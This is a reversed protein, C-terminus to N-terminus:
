NSCVGFGIVQGERCIDEQQSNSEGHIDIIQKLIDGMHAVRELVSELDDGTVEVIPDINESVAVPTDGGDRYFKTSIRIEARLKM